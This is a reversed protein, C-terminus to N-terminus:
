EETDAQYYIYPYGTGGINFKAKLEKNAKRGTLLYTNCLEDLSRHLQIDGWVKSQCANVVQKKTFYGQEELLGLCITEIEEHRSEAKAVAKETTATAIQRTPAIKQPYMWDAVDEGESGLFMQYSMGKLTYHHEKWRQASQNIADVDLPSVRFFATHMRRGSSKAIEKAKTLDEPPIDADQLAEIMHHYCFVKIWRGVKNKSADETYCCLKDLSAFFVVDETERETKPFIQERGFKLLATYLWLGRQMNRYAIPCEQALGDNVFHLINDITQKQKTAWHNDVITVNLCRKIFDIAETQNKYRGIKQVIEKINLTLGEAFCHYEWVENKTQFVSASPSNDEHFFCCFPKKENVGLFDCLPYRYIYEFFEEETEFSRPEEGLVERFFGVDHRKIAEFHLNVDAQQGKPKKPATKTTPLDKSKAYPLYYKAYVAKAEETRERIVDYGRLTNGTVAIYRGDKYAERSKGNVDIKKQSFTLTDDALFFLHIGTRSISIEAYTDMQTIIEKAFDEIKGNDDIVHDLDFCCLGNGLVIGIGLITEKAFYEENTAKDTEKLSAIKGINSCATEFTGWTKSNSSSANSLTKPNIPAKKKSFNTWRCESKYRDFATYKDIRIGNM